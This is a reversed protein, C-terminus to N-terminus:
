KLEHLCAVDVIQAREEKRFGNSIYVSYLLNKEFLWFEKIWIMIDVTHKHLSFLCSSTDRFIQSILDQVRQRRQLYEKTAGASGRKFCTSEHFGIEYTFFQKLFKSLNILVSFASLFIIKSQTNIKDSESFISAIDTSPQLELPLPPSVAKKPSSFTFLFYLFYDLQSLALTPFLLNHYHCSHGSLQLTRSYNSNSPKKPSIKRVNKMCM